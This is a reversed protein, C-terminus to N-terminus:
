KKNDETLRIFNSQREEPTLQIIGVAVKRDNEKTGHKMKHWDLMIKLLIAREKPDKVEVRTKEIFLLIDLESSERDEMLDMIRKYTGDTLGRRKLGRLRAAYKKEPTKAKGGKKGGARGTESNFGVMGRAIMEERTRPQKKKTTM